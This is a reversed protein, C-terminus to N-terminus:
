LRRRLFAYTETYDPSTDQIMFMETSAYISALEARKTYWTFDANKDGAYYLIDDVIEALHKLSEPLNGPHGMIALADGWHAAYPQVLQLRLVLFTYLREHFTKLQTEDQQQLAEEILKVHQERCDKLFADVLSWEGHEFLGHAVSPYNLSSVGQQIATKTWGHQQVFPLTAKLL